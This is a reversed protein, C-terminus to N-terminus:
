PKNNPNNNSLERDRYDGAWAAFSEIRERCMDLLRARGAADRLVMHDLCTEVALLTEAIEGAAGDLLREDRERAAKLVGDRRVSYESAADEFKKGDGALVDKPNGSNNASPGDSMDSKDSRDSVGAAREAAELKRWLKNTPEQHDNKLHYM